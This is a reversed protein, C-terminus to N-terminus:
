DNQYCLCVFLQLGAYVGMERETAFQSFSNTVLAVTAVVLAVQVAEAVVALMYDVRVVVSCKCRAVVWFGGLIGGDGGCVM